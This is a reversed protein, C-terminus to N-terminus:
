DTQYFESILNVVEKAALMEQPEKILDILNEFESKQLLLKNSNIMENFTKCIEEPTCHKQLLEPVIEKKALINLISVWKVKILLKVLLATLWSTKYIVISPTGTKALELNVTGSAAIAVNSIHLVVNKQKLDTIVNCDDIDLLSSLLSKKEPLTPVFIKVSGYNKKILKVAANMIPVHKKIESNRSGPLLCLVIDTPMINFQKKFKDKADISPNVLYDDNAVPHGVFVSKLGFKEFFKPEFPFLTLLLDIFKHMKKARWPRWAWVPPAVYHVIPIDENERKVKKAVRHTFGSSDITILVDPKYELIKEATNDILKKIHILKPLVEAIGIVTIESMDFFVKMHEAMLRGGIGLIEVKNNTLVKLDQLLRSGLYDGSPEGAIIFIKKM